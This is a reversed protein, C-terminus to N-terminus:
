ENNVETVPPLRGAGASKAPPEQQQHKAREQQAGQNVAAQHQQLPHPSAAAAPPQAGSARQQPQEAPAQQAAAGQEQQTSQDAPSPQGRVSQARQQEAPGKDTKPPQQAAPERQQQQQQQGTAASPGSAASGPAGGAEIRDVAADLEAAAPMRAVDVPQRLQLGAPHQLGLSSGDVEGAASAADLDTPLGPPHSAPAAASTSTRKKKPEFFRRYSGKSVWRTPHLSCLVSPLLTPGDCWPSHAMRSTAVTLAVAALCLTALGVCCWRRRMSTSM